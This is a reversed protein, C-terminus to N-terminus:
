EVVPKRVRWQIRVEGSIVIVVVGSDSDKRRWFGLTGGVNWPTSKLSLWATASALSEIMLSCHTWRIIFLSTSSSIPVHSAGKGFFARMDTSSATKSGNRRSKTRVASSDGANAGRKM